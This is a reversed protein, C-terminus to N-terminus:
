DHSMKSMNMPQNLEYVRQFDDQPTLAQEMLRIKFLTIKNADVYSEKRLSLIKDQIYNIYQNHAVHIYHQM